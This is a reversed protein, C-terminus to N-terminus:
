LHISTIIYHKNGKGAPNLSSSSWLSFFSYLSRRSKRNTSWREENLDEGHARQVATLSTFKSGLAWRTLDNLRQGDLPTGLGFAGDIGALQRRLKVRVHRCRVGGACLEQHAAFAHLLDKAREVGETLLDLRHTERQASLVAGRAGALVQVEALGVEFVTVSVFWLVWFM